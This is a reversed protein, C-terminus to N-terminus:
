RTTSKRKKKSEPKETLPPLPDVCFDRYHPHDEKFQDKPKIECSPDCLVDLLGSVIHELQTRNFKKCLWIVIKSLRDM